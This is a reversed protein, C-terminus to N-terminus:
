KPSWGLHAFVPFSSDGNFRAAKCNSICWALSQIMKAAKLLAVPDMLGGIRVSVTSSILAISLAVVQIELRELAMSLRRSMTVELCSKM